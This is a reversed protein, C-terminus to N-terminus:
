KQGTLINGFERMQDWYSNRDEGFRYSVTWTDSGADNRASITITGSGAETPTGSIVRTTANFALGAPLSGVVSYTIDEGSQQQRSTPNFERVSRRRRTTLGISGRNLIFRTSNNASTDVEILIGQTIDTLLDM